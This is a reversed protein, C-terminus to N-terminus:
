RPGAGSEPGRDKHKQKKVETVGKSVDRERFSIVSHINETIGLEKVPFPDPSHQCINLQCEPSVFVFVFTSECHKGIEM